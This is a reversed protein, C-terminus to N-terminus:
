IIIKPKNKLPMTKFFINNSDFIPKNRNTLIDSKDNIFDMTKIKILDNRHFINGLFNNSHNLLLTRNWNNSGSLNNSNKIKVRKASYCRKSLYNSFNEKNQMKKISEFLKKIHEKQKFNSICYIMKYKNNFNSKNQSIFSQFMKTNNSIINYANVNKNCDLYIHYNRTVVSNLRFKQQKQRLLSNNFLSTVQNEKNEKLLMNDKNLLTDKISKNDNISDKNTLNGLNNKIYSNPNIWTRKFLNNIHKKNYKSTIKAYFSNAKYESDFTEQFIDLMNSSTSDKNSKESIISM